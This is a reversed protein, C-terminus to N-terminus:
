YEHNIESEIYNSIVASLKNVIYDPQYVTNNELESQTVGIAANFVKEATESYQEKAEKRLDKTIRYEKKGIRLVTRKTQYEGTDDNEALLDGLVGFPMNRYNHIKSKKVQGGSLYEQYKVDVDNESNYIGYYKVQLEPVSGIKSLEDLVTQPKINKIPISLVDKAISKTIRILQHSDEKNPDDYVLLLFYRTYNHTELGTIIPYILVFNNDTGIRNEKEFLYKEKAEFYGDFLNTSYASVRLLLCPRDGIIHDTYTISNIVTKQTKNRNEFSLHGTYVKIKQKIADILNQYTDGFLVNGEEVMETSFVPVQIKYTKEKPTSM